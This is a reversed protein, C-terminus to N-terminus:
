RDREREREREREIYIYIYIYIHIYIDHRVDGGFGARCWIGQVRFVLCSDKLVLWGISLVSYGFGLVTFGVGKPTVDQDPSVVGTLDRSTCGTRARVLGYRQKTDRGTKDLIYIDPTV